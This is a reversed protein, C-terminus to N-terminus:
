SYPRHNVAGWFPTLRLLQRIRSRRAGTCSYGAPDRDATRVSSHYRHNYCYLPSVYPQRNHWRKSPFGNHLRPLNIFQDMRKCQSPILCLPLPHRASVSSLWDTGPRRCNEPWFLGGM